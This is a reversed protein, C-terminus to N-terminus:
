GIRPTTCGSTKTLGLLEELAGQIKEGTIPTKNPLEKQRIRVQLPNNIATTWLPDQSGKTQLKPFRDVIEQLM